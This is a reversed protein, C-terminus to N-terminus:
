GCSRRSDGGDRWAEAIWTARSFSRTVLCRDAIGGRGRMLDTNTEYSRWANFIQKYLLRRALFCEEVRSLGVGSKLV